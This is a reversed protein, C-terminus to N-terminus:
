SLNENQDIKEEVVKNVAKEQEEIKQLYSIDAFSEEACSQCYYDSTDKIMLVAEKGCIICKKM